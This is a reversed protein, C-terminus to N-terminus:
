KEKQIRLAETENKIQLREALVTKNEKKIQAVM